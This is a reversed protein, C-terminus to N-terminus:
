VADPQSEPAASSFEHLSLCRENIKNISPFQSIKCDFRKANYVQPVLFIDAITPDDGCCFKGKFNNKEIYKEVATFGEHVWKCYWEKKQRDSCNLTETLYDLVRLNNLPHIECAIIQALARVYAKAPVSNPFLRPEPYMEELYDIIAQSQIIIRGQDELAPVLGQPNIALYEPQWNEGQSKLLHVPFSEYALHKLNLAIRVRYASSSRYYTYLKM